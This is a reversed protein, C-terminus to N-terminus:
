DSKLKSIVNEAGTVIFSTDIGCLIWEAGEEIESKLSVPTMGFIGWPIAAKKCALKIKNIADKVEPHDVKGIYGMSASLDYPGIFIASIGKVELISELNRVAEINEIQILINVRKSKEFVYNNFQSGYGQARSVGVSRSGLPPYHASKVAKEAEESTKVMPVMIGDCGIDLVRKIWTEDNDPVRVISLTSPKLSQIHQRVSELSLTSHEMDIVVWDFGALSMIESCEPSGLTIIAGIRFVSNKM